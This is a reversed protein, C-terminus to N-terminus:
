YGIGYRSAKRIYEQRLHRIRRDEDSEGWGGGYGGGSGGLPIRRLLPNPGLLREMALADLERQAEKNGRAAARRYWELARAGNRRVGIGDAYMKGVILQGRAYGQEAAQLYLEFAKQRDQPVGKGKEYAVGLNIQAQPCGQEAAKRYYSIAVSSYLLENPAEPLGRGTEYMYGLNCMANVNGQDVAKRYWEVAISDDQTVGEGAEYLVGLGYQAEAHGQEAAKSFWKAVEEEDEPIYGRQYLLGLYYQANAVDRDAEEKVCEILSELQEPTPTKETGSDIAMTFWKLAETDDKEVGRGDHYATGLIYLSRCHTQWVNRSIASFKRMHVIVDLESEIADTGQTAAKRFWRLAKTNDKPISIGKEYLTGLFLQAIACNNEASDRLWQFRKTKNEDDPLVDYFLCLCCQAHAHGQEAAKLFWKAAEDRDKSVGTGSDYMKGLQFQADAYGREAAARFCKFAIKLDEETANNFHIIGINYAARDDGQEAGKMFWALAEKEDQEVGQGEYYMAGLNFQAAFYGREGEAAKRFWDIAKGVDQACGIGDRFMVGLNYQAKTHGQEAAKVFWNRASEPDKDVGHGGFYMLALGHQASPHGQEAAKRCLEFAAGEDEPVGIGTLLCQVLLFQGEPMEMDSAKQWIGLRASVTEKLYPGAEGMALFREEYAQIDANVADQLEDKSLKSADVTERPTQRAVGAPPGSAKLEEVLASFPLAEDDPAQDSEAIEVPPTTEESVSAAGAKETSADPTQDGAPEADGQDRIESAGSNAVGCGFSFLFAVSLIAVSARLSIATSSPQIM